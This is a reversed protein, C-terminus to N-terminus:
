KQFYRWCGFVILVISIFWCSVAFIWFGIDNKDDIGIQPQNSTKNLKATSTASQPSDCQPNFLNIGFLESPAVDTFHLRSFSFFFNSNNSIIPIAPSTPQRGNESASDALEYLSARWAFSRVAFVSYFLKASRDFTISSSAFLLHLVIAGSCFLAKM